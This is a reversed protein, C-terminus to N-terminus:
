HRKLKLSHTNKRKISWSNIQIVIWNSFGLVALVSGSVRAQEDARQKCSVSGRRGLSDGLNPTLQLGKGLFEFLSWKLSKTVDNQLLAPHLMLENGEAGSRLANKNM